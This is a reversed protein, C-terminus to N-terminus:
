DNLLEFMINCKDPRKNNNLFIIYQDIGKKLDLMNIKDLKQDQILNEVKLLINHYNQEIKNSAQTVHSNFFSLYKDSHIIKSYIVITITILNKTVVPLDENYSNMLGVYEGDTDEFLCYYIIPNCWNRIKILRAKNINAYIKNLFLFIFYKHNHQVYDIDEYYKILFESFKKSFDLNIIFKLYFDLVFSTKTEELDELIEFIKILANQNDFAIVRYFNLYLLAAENTLEFNLINECEENWLDCIKNNKVFTLKERFSKKSFYKLNFHTFCLISEDDLVTEDIDVEKLLSLEFKRNIYHKYVETATEISNTSLVIVKNSKCIDNVQTKKSILHTTFNGFLSKCLIEEIKKISDTILVAKKESTHKQSYM